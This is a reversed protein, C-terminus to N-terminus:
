GDNRDVGGEVVSGVAGDEAPDSQDDHHQQVDEAHNM